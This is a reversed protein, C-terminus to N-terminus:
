VIVVIYFEHKIITVDYANNIIGVGVDIYIVHVGV